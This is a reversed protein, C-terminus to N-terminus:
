VSGSTDMLVAVYIPLSDKESAVTFGKIEQPQKDEYVLFDNKTLGTVPQKNKGIVTVPLRVERIFFKETDSQEQQAPTPTPSPQKQQSLAAPQSMAFLSLAFAAAFLFRYIISRMVLRPYFLTFSFPAYLSHSFARPNSATRM